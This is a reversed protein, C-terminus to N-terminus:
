TNCQLHVRPDVCTRAVHARHILVQTTFGLRVVDTNLKKFSSHISGMLGCTVADPTGMCVSFHGWESVSLCVPLRLDGGLWGSVVSCRAPRCREQRDRQKMVEDLVSGCAGVSRHRPIEYQILGHNRCSLCCVLALIDDAVIAIARDNLPQGTVATRLSPSMSHEHLM